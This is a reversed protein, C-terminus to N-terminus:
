QGLAALGSKNLKANEARAIKALMSYHQDANNRVDIGRYDTLLEM